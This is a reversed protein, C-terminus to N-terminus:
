VDAGGGGEKLASLLVRVVGSLRAAQMARDLRAYRSPKVFPRLATLLAAANDDTRNYAQMLRMGLRLVAPDMGDLLGSFDATPQQEQEHEPPQEPIEQVGGGQQSGSISRALAMIQGMANRDSLIANLKEEMGEGM